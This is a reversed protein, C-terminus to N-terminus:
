SRRSSPSTTAPMATPPREEGRMRAAISEAFLRVQSGADNVYYEREVEHGNFALLRALSDGYAAGAVQM